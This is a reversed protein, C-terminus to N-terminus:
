LPRGSGNSRHRADRFGEGFQRRVATWISEPPGQVENSRLNMDTQRLKPPAPLVYTEADRLRRYDKEEPEDFNWLFRNGYRDHRLKVNTYKRTERAVGNALSTRGLPTLTLAGEHAILGRQMLRAVTSPVIVEHDLGMLAEIQSPVGVGAEVLRMVTEEALRLRRDVEIDLDLKWITHPAVEECRILEFGDAENDVM